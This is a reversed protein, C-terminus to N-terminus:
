VNKKQEQHPEFRPDEFRSDSARDISQAVGGGRLQVHGDIKEGWMLTVYVTHIM